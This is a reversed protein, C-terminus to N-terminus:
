GWYRDPLIRPIKMDLMKRSLFCVLSVDDEGACSHDVHGSSRCIEWYETLTISFLGLQKAIVIIFSCSLRTSVVYYEDTCFFLYIRLLHDQHLLLVAAQLHCIDSSVIVEICASSLM